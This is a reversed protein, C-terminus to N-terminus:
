TQILPYTDLRKYIQNNIKSKTYWYYDPVNRFASKAQYIDTSVKDVMRVLTEVIYPATVNHVKTKLCGSIAEFHRPSHDKLYKLQSKLLMFTLMEHQECIGNECPQNYYLDIKGADHLLGAIFAVATTVSGLQFQKSLLAANFAVEYSHELLGGIYEHHHRHSGRASFFATIFIQDSLIQYFFSRLAGEPIISYFYWLDRVISKHQPLAQKLHFNVLIKHEKSILSKLAKIKEIKPLASDGSFFCILWQGDPNISKMDESKMSLQLERTPSIFLWQTNEIKSAWVLEACEPYNTVINM